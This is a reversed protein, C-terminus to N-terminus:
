NLVVLGGEGLEAISQYFNKLHDFHECIWNFEQEGAGDKSFRYVRQEEMLEPKYQAKLEISSIGNLWPAICAVSAASIFRLPM